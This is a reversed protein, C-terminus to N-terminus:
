PLPQPTDAAHMRLWDRRAQREAALAREAEAQRAALTEEMSPFGNHARNVDVLYLMDADYSVNMRVLIRIGDANGERYWQPRNQVALLAYGEAALARMTERTYAGEPYSLIRFQPPTDLRSSLLQWATGADDLFTQAPTIESNLHSHTHSYVTFVGGASLENLQEWSMHNELETSGTIVFVSAPVGLERLLPEALTLNSLYGDDFTVIFYDPGIEYDGSVYAELSLPRYGFRLMTEIDDRMKDPTTCWTGTQAEDTTLDHYMFAFIDGPVAPQTEEPPEPELVAASAADSAPAALPAVSPTAARSLALTRSTYLTAAPYPAPYLILVCLLAASFVAYLFRLAFRKM